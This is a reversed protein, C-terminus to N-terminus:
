KCEKLGKVSAVDGTGAVIEEVSMQKKLKTWRCNCVADTGGTNKVCVELFEKKAVEAPYKGKCDTVMTKRAALGREDALASENGFDAISLTKRLSTWACECYGSKAKDGEVCADMFSAKVEPEPLKGACAKSTESQLQAVRPDTDVLPKSFDADKFIIKFQEFSCECFARQNTKQVCSGIFSERQDEVTEVKPAPTETAPAPAPAPAAASAAPAAAPETSGGCALTMLSALPILALVSGFVSRSM